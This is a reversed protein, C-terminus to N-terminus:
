DPLQHCHGKCGAPCPDSDDSMWDDCTEKKSQPLHGEASLTDDAMSSPPVQASVLDCGSGPKNILLTSM